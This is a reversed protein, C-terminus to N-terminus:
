RREEELKDIEDQQEIRRVLYRVDEMWNQLWWRSGGREVWAEIERVLDMLRSVLQKTEDSSSSM